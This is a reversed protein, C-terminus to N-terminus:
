QGPQSCMQSVEVETTNGPTSSIILMNSGGYYWLVLCWFVPGLDPGANTYIDQNEGATVSPKGDLLERDAFEPVQSQLCQILLM